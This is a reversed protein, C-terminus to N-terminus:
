RRAYKAIHKKSRAVGAAKGAEKRAKKRKSMKKATPLAANGPAPTLSRPGHPKGHESKDTHPKLDRRLLTKGGGMAKKAGRKSKGMAKATAAIKNKMKDRFHRKADQISIGHKDAYRKVAVKDMKGPAATKYRKGPSWATIRSKGDTGGLRNVKARFARGHKEPVNKFSAARLGGGISARCGPRVAFTHYGSKRQVVFRDQPISGRLGPTAIMAGKKCKKFTTENAFKGAGKSKDKSKRKSSKADAKAKKKAKKKAAKDATADKKSERAAHKRKRKKNRKRKKAEVLLGNVDIGEALLRDVLGQPLYPISQTLDKPHVYGGERPDYVAGHPTRKKRKRVSKGMSRGIGKTAGGKTKPETSPKVTLGRLAAPGRAMIQIFSAKQIGPMKKKKLLDSIRRKLRRQAPKNLATRLRQTIEQSAQHKQHTKGGFPVLRRKGTASAIAAVTKPKKGASDRTLSKLTEIRKALSKTGGSYTQYSPQSPTKLGAVYSQVKRAKEVADKAIKSKQPEPPRRIKGPRHPSDPGQERYGRGRGAREQRKIERGRGRRSEVFTSVFTSSFRNPKTPM